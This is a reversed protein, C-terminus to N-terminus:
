GKLLPLTSVVIKIEVRVVFVSFDGFFLLLFLLFETGLSSDPGEIVFFNLFSGCM